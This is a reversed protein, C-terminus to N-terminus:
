RAAENHNGLDTIRLDLPLDHQSAMYDEVLRRVPEVRIRRTIDAAFAYTLLHRAAEIGVGRSRLYFVGEEDVPGITSGHTCKVDDTYIELAPQSHMTADDSLLLSKSTQKANTKHAGPRVLIKGKFVGTARGSLVHKYLEHSPCNPQAHDLHTHNDVHQRGSAVVLGNLTAEAGEGALEVNLDNRTLMAGITVSHSIFGAARNLRVQTTSVHYAAPGEHQLKYHDIRSGAGAVMETVANTFCTGASGAYTEVIAAQVNEGTLVLVRPHCVTPEEGPASLFLLHIPRDLTTGRPLDIFAGDSIFGTNLAVFPNAKLNAVRGLYESLRDSDSELAAALSIARAGHPLRGLRSLRPTFHGNVFVLEICAEDGLTHRRTDADRASAAVFRTQAIPAVSTHRWEEEDAGPFGTEAFTHIGSERLAGLWAHESAGRQRALAVYNSAHSGKKEVVQTM